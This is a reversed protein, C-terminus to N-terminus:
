SFFSFFRSLTVKRLIIREDDMMVDTVDFNEETIVERYPLHSEVDEAFTTGAPIRLPEKIFSIKRWNGLSTDDATIPFPVAYPNFDRLRLRKGRSVVRSTANCADVVRLGCIAYPHGIWDNPFWRSNQPGWVEWPILSSQDKKLFECVHPDLGLFVRTHVVLGLVQFPRLDGHLLISLTCLKGESSSKFLPESDQSSCQVHSNGALPYSSAHMSCCCREAVLKPLGFKGISILGRDSVAPDDFSYIEVFFGGGSTVLLTTLSLFHIDDIAMTELLECQGSPYSFPYTSPSSVRVGYSAAQTWNWLEVHSRRDSQVQKVLLAVFDGAVQITTYHPVFHVDVHQFPLSQHNPATARPHMEQGGNMFRSILRCSFMGNTTM